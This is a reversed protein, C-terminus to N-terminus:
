RVPKSSSQDVAQYNAQDFTLRGSVHSHVLAVAVLVVAATTAGFIFGVFRLGKSDARVM